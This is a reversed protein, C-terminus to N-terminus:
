NSQRSLNEMLNLDQSKGQVIVELYFNMKTLFDFIEPMEAPGEGPLGIKNIPVGKKSYHILNGLMPDLAFIGDATIELRYIDALYFDDKFQLEIITDLEFLDLFEKEIVAEQNELDIIISNADNKGSDNVSCAFSALAVGVFIYKKMLKFKFLLSGLTIPEKCCLKIKLTVAIMVNLLWVGGEM